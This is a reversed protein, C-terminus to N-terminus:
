PEVAGPGPARPKGMLVPQFFVAGVLTCALSLALLKGMSSTGPHHSLWLSGFATATTAASLIVAQTLGSHLLGTQGARWAIVYYIKFAVGIGLLLPLAIINAFNLSIGFLVCLELTVSASVLLPILTRLVDGFRRLALWLLVTISVLALSAAQVFALIITHASALISIPGGIAEPEAKEVAAAFARLLADDNPDAGKPIRPAIDVLAEGHPGQWQEVLEAPLTARAISAPHLLGALSTLALRLPLGIAAEARDRAAPDATALRRLLVALRQAEAAGAGPYDAAANTLERAANNLSTIRAGDTAGPLPEQNLVPSLILAAAQIAALKADQDDPVFSDLTTVQGVEPVQALRRAVDQAAAGSAALVQVNNIAAEPADKLDSLTAMSETHIDKLHLPNFDFDLRALLPAAALILVGCVALIAGRHTEFFRDVPALATFGPLIREGAPRLLVILAPLLTISSPFAVLLIGVGAIEGLESVGRYATPLFSFFSAATAAAALALPLAIAHATAGLAETLAAHSHRAERYRVGFQISFDVGIGVFLVAFAVSIMNLTGVLLLGLAATIALGVLLTVLVAFVLKVSRLALWLILVVTAFTGIGNLVAGQEVSAFEEDALPIPGTLRVRAAFREDLHLAQATARISAAANQGAELAAFDLRPQVVIFSRAVIAPRRGAPDEVLARWSLGAPREALVAEVTDATSGLLRALDALKIQGTQLPVLLTVSLLNALGRLSPDHALGNLLPRASALDQCLSVVRDRPLFLLGNHEFFPGSEPQLVRQFQESHGRLAETLASGAADAFEAIPAEVVVLTVNARDPFARELARDRVAWGENSDILRGIDTNIAFHGAVYYISLACLVLGAALVKWPHRSCTAVTHVVLSNLM